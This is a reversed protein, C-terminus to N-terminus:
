KAAAIEHRALGEARDVFDNGSGGSAGAGLHQYQRRQDVPRSLPSRHHRERGPLGDDERRDDVMQVGFVHDARDLTLPHHRHRHDTVRYRSGQDGGDLLAQFVPCGIHRRQGHNGIAACQEGWEDLLPQDATDVPVKLAPGSVKTADSSRVAM